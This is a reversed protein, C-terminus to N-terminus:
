GGLFILEVFICVGFSCMGDLFDPRTMIQRCEFYPISPSPPSDLVADPNAEQKNKLEEEQAVRRKM